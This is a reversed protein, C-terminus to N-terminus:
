KIEVKEAKKGKKEWKELNEIRADILSRVALLIEKKAKILHESVESQFFRTFLDVIPCQPYPTEKKNAM